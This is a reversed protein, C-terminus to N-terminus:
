PQIEIIKFSVDVKQEFPIVEINYNGKYYTKFYHENSNSIIQQKKFSILYKVNDKSKIFYSKDKKLKIKYEKTEFKIWSTFSINKNLNIEHIIKNNINEVEQVLLNYEGNKNKFDSSVMFYYEGIYNPKFYLKNNFNNPKNQLRKTVKNIDDETIEKNKNTNNTNNDNKDFEIVIEIDNAMKNIYQTLINGIIETFENQIVIDDVNNDEKNESIIINNESINEDFSNSSDKMFEDDSMEKNDLSNTSISMDNSSMIDLLDENSSTPIEKDWSITKNSSESQLNLLNSKVSSNIINNSESVNEDNNVQEWNEYNLIENTDYKLKIIKKNKDFLRLNFENSNCSSLTIFYNKKTDLNIKYIEKFNSDNLENTILKNVEIINIKKM